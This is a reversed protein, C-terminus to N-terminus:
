RNKNSWFTGKSLRWQRFDELILRHDFAIQSSLAEAVTFFDFAGADDCAQPEGFFNCIFVVSLTHGRPDRDPASYVGLIAVPDIAVSLEEHMERKLTEEIPEGEELFGGPLAWYDHFTRGARKILIIKDDRVLIGDAAIATM